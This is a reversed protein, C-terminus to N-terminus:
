NVIISQATNKTSAEDPGILLTGDSYLCAYVDTYPIEAEYENNLDIVPSIYEEHIKINNGSGEFTADGLRNNIYKLDDSIIFRAEEGRDNSVIVNFKYDGLSKLKRIIGNDNLRFYEGNNSNQLTWTLKETNNFKTALRVDAADPIYITAIHHDSVVIGEYMEMSGDKNIILTYSNKKLSYFVYESGSGTVCVGNVRGQVYPQLSNMTFLNVFKESTTAEFNNEKEMQSIAALLESKTQELKKLRQSNSYNIILNIAIAILILGGVVLIILKMGTIGKNKM